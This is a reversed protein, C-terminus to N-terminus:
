LLLPFEFIEQQSHSLAFSVVKCTWRSFEHLFSHFLFGSQRRLVLIGEAQFIHVGKPCVLLETALENRETTACREPRTEALFSSDDPCDVTISKTTVMRDSHADVTLLFLLFVVIRKLYRMESNQFGEAMRNLNGNEFLCFLLVVVVRLIVVWDCM